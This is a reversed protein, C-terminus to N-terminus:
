QSHHSQQQQEPNIVFVWGVKCAKCLMEIKSVLSTCLGSSLNPLELGISLISWGLFLGLYGGIDSVLQSKDYVFFERSLLPLSSKSHLYFASTWNKTLKETTKKTQYFKYKAGNCKKLCKTEANLNQFNIEKLQIIIKKFKVIDTLNSCNKMDSQDSLTTKSVWDVKCGVESAIFNNVCDTFKYNEDEECEKGKQNIKSLINITFKGALEKNEELVIKGSQGLQQFDSNPWFQGKEHLYINYSDFVGKKISKFFIGIGASKGFKSEKPPNYTHCYGEEWSRLDYFQSEWFLKNKTLDGKGNSVLNENTCEKSCYGWGAGTKCYGVGYNLRKCSHIPTGNSGSFPFICPKGPDLSSRTTLCPHNFDTMHPHSVFHFIDEMNSVNDLIAVEIDEFKSVNDHILDDIRDDFAQRKCFTLSPYMIKKVDFTTIQVSKNGEFYRLISDQGAFVFIAIMGIHFCVKFLTSIHRM